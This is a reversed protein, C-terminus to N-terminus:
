SVASVATLIGNCAGGTLWDFGGCSALTHGIGTVGTPHPPPPICLYTICNPTARPNNSSRRSEAHLQIILMHALPSVRAFVPWGRVAPRLPDARTGGKQASTSVRTYPNWKPNSAMKAMAVFAKPPQAPHHHPAVKPVLRCLGHQSALSWHQARMTGAGLGAEAVIRSPQFPIMSDAHAAHPRTSLGLISIV